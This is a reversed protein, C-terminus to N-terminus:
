AEKPKTGRLEYYLPRGKAKQICRKAELAKILAKLAPGADQLAHRLKTINVPGREKRMIGLIKRELEPSPPYAFVAPPPTITVNRTQSRQSRGSEALAMRYATEMPIYMMSRAGKLRFGFVGTPELSVNLPRGEVHIPSEREIRTMLLRAM